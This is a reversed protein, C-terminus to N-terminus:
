RRWEQAKRKKLKVSVKGKRIKWTTGGPEVSHFLPSLHLRWDVLATVTKSAPVSRLMITVDSERTSVEVNQEMVFGAAGEFLDKDLDISITAVENTDAFTYHEITKLLNGDEGM